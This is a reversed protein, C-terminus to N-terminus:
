RHKDLLRDHYLARADVDPPVLGSIREVSPHVPRGEAGERLRTLYRNLVDTVTLDHDAAYRKVFELNERPLRVTLKTREAM